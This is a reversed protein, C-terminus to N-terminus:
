CICHLFDTLLNKSDYSKLGSIDNSEDICTHNVIINTSAFHISLIAISGSRYPPTQTPNCMELCFKKGRKFNRNHPLSIIFICTKSVVNEKTQKTRDM